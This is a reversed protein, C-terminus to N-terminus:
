STGRKRGAVHQCRARCGGGGEDQEAAQESIFQKLDDVHRPDDAKIEFPRFKKFKSLIDAEPRSTVVVKVWVPLKDVCSVLAVLVDSRAKSEVAGIEDLADIVLIM